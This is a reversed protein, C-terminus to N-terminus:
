KTKNSCEEILATKLTVKEIWLHNLQVESLKWLTFFYEANQALFNCWQMNPVRKSYTTIVTNELIIFTDLITGKATILKQYKIQLNSQTVL